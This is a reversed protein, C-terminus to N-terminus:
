LILSFLNLICSKLQAILANDETAPLSSPNPIRSAKLEHNGQNIFCDTRARSEFDPHVVIRTRTM